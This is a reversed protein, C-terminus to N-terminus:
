VFTNIKASMSGCTCEGKYMHIYYVCVCGSGELEFEVGMMIPTMTPTNKGTIIMRM